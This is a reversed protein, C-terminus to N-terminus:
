KQKRKLLCYKASLEYYVKFIMPSFNFTGHVAYTSLLLLNHGRKFFSDFHSVKFIGM